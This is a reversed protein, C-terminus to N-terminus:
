RRWGPKEGSDERGGTKGNVHFQRQVRPSMSTLKGNASSPLSHRRVFGNEVGEQSFRASGHGKLKAKASETAAMYSPLNSTNVAVNESLEQKVPLSMRRKTKHVVKGSQEDKPTVEDMTASNGKAKQDDGSPDIEVLVSNEHVSDVMETISLKAPSEGGVQIAEEVISTKEVDIIEATEETGKVSEDPTPLSTETTSIKPKETVTELGEMVEKSAATVKRLNRKVRELESQAQEQVPDPKNTSSKRIGRIPKEFDSASASINDANNTPSKRVVRKSRTPEVEGHQGANQQKQFRSGAGKRAQPLAEWIHSSSWRELWNEANNPDLPDYHLNLPVASPSSVLLKCIFSNKWMKESKFSPNIGSSMQGRIMRQLNVIAQMCRLTAIAQRRVLHGRILAQLRIIGKLVHFARRALYGRFTAQVLSAAKGDREADALSKEVSVANPQVAAINDKAIEINEEGKRLSAPDNLLPVSQPASIEPSADFSVTSEKEPGLKKSLGSKSSKKGFLMGKLWKGGRSKGM